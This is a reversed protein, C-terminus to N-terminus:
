EKLVFAASATPQGNVVITLTHLGAYYRRTTIVKFSQKTAVKSRGAPYTKDSCKFRKPAQKGSAKLYGIEYEIRLM